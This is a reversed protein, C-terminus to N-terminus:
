LIEDAIKDLETGFMKIFNEKNRNKTLRFLEEESLLLEEFSFRPANRKIEDYELQNASVQMFSLPEVGNRIAIENLKNNLMKESYQLREANLRIWLLRESEDKFFIKRAM